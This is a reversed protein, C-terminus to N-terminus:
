SDFFFFTCHAIARILHVTFVLCIECISKIKLALVHLEPFYFQTMLFNTPLLCIFHLKSKTPHWYNLLHSECKSFWTFLARCNVPYISILHCREKNLIKWIYFSSEAHKSGKVILIQGVVLSCESQSKKLIQFVFLDPHM